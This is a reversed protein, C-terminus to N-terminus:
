NKKVYRFGLVCLWTVFTFLSIVSGYYFTDPQYKLELLNIGPPVKVASLAINSRYIPLEQDNIYARWGPYFSQSIHLYNEQNTNLSFFINNPSYKKIEITGPNNIEIDQGIPCEVIMLDKASYFTNILDEYFNSCKTKKSFWALGLNSTNEYIRVTEFNNVEKFKLPRLFKHPLGSPDPTSEKEDRNIFALHSIDLTDILPSELNRIEAFRGTSEKGNNNILSIYKSTTLQYMPNQGSASKLGFPIWTNAPIIEGIEREFRHTKTLEQLKKIAPTEPYLLEPSTFSLYKKSSRTIDFILFLFILIVILKSFKDTSQTFHQIIQKNLLRDILLIKKLINGFHQLRLSENKFILILTIFFAIGLPLLSNKLAVTYNKLGYILVEKSVDSTEINIWNKVFLVSIFLGLIIGIYIGLPYFIKIRSYNNKMIYMFGISSIVSAAFDFFLLNRAAVAAKLGFLGNKVLIDNLPHSLSIILSLISLIIFIFNYKYFSKQTLVIIFFIVGVTSISFAFNDYSGIGWYNGTAPNGFFDPVFFTLLHSLPLFQIKGAQAVTDINRISHQLLELSPLIQVSALLIGSLISLGFVIIKKIRDKKSEYLRFAFYVSTFFITYLSIQPYGSFIQICLSIAILFALHIKPKELLKDTLFFILPIFSITFGITNYEMWVISFGSFSFLISGFISAPQSIKLNRLYLYMSLSIFFPQLIVQVSWALNFPLLFFLVNIPNLLAAQFNALLPTGLLISSDWLPIIGQKILSIGLFRWPYIISIVDSPAPNKVPVGVSYGWKYDLWPFYAGVLIDSPIPLLGKIFFDSFSLFVVFAFTLLPFLHIIKKLM